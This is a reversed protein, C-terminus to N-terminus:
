EGPWPTVGLFPGDTFGLSVPYSMQIDAVSFESGAFWPQSGLTQEVWDYAQHVEAHPRPRGRRRGSDGRASAGRHAQVCRVAPSLEQAM